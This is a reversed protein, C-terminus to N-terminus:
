GPLLSPATVERDVARQDLCPGADLAKTGFVTAAFRRRRAAIALAVKVALLAAVLRM